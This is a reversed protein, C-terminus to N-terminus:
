GDFRIAYRIVHYNVSVRDLLCSVLTKRYRCIHCKVVNNLHRSRDDPKVIYVWSIEPLRYKLSLVLGAARSPRRPMDNTM